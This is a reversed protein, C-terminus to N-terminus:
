AKASKSIKKCIACIPICVCFWLVSFPLCIQGLLNMPMNSYDWVRWGLVLNVLCGCLFEVATIALAGTAARQWLARDRMIRNIHFVSLLCVGGCVAMSWHSYGRFIVEATYYGIGGVALLAADRICRRIDTPPIKKIKENSTNM